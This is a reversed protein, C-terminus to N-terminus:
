RIIRPCFDEGEVVATMQVSLPNKGRILLRHARMPRFPKASTLRPDLSLLAPTDKPNTPAIHSVMPHLWPLRMIDGSRALIISAM